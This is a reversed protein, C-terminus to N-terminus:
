ICNNLEWMFKEFSIQIQLHEHKRTSEDEKEKCQL